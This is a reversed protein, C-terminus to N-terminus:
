SLRDTFYDAYLKYRTKVTNREFEVLGLSYLKHNIVTGLDVPSTSTVVIKM